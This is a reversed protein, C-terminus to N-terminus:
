FKIVIIRGSVLDWSGDTSYDATSDGVSRVCIADKPTNATTVKAGSFKDFASGNIRVTGSYVVQSCAVFTCLVPLKMDVDEVQEIGVVIVDGVVVWGPQDTFGSSADFINVEM